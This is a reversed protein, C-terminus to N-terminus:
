RQDAWGSLVSPAFRGGEGGERRVQPACVKWVKDWEWRGGAAQIVGERRGEKGLRRGATKTDQRAAM